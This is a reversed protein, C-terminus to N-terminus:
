PQVAAAEDSTPITCVSYISTLRGLWTGDTTYMWFGERVSSRITFAPVETWSNLHEHWADVESSSAVQMRVQDYGTPLCLSGPTPMDYVAIARAIEAFVEGRTPSTPESM